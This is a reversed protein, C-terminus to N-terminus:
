DRVRPLAEEGARKGFRAALHPSPLCVNSVLGLAILARISLWALDLEWWKHGHRASSPDAHHNNHWGEGGALIGVIVNNRSADRTEYNRYGWVHSVSNISWSIHWTAVARVFVGWVLLSSGFQLAQMATGGSALEALFGALFFPCWSAPILWWYYREIAAYLPDRMIDRAYRDLLRAPEHDDNKIVVWGVHAWLFGVLPSHPDGEDDAFQHHRRHHAVWMAPTGSMACAGLVAFTREIWKPTAFGRHTLLRHYGVHLGLTSFLYIGLVALVVGTWSFLWPLLATFAVLHYGFIGAALPWEVRVPRAAAPWPLRDPREAKTIETADVSM